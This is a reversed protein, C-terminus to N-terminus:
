TQRQGRQTKTATNSKKQQPSHPRERTAAALYAEREPTLLPIKGIDKLYMRVPDDIALGEQSLLKEMKEGTEYNKVDREIEKFHDNEIDEPTASDIDVQTIDFDIDELAKMIGSEVIGSSSKSDIYDNVDIKERSM